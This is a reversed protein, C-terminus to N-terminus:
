PVSFAFPPARHILRNLELELFNQILNRRGLALPIARKYALGHAEHPRHNAQFANEFVVFGFPVISIFSFSAARSM